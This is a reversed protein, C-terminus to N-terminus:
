TGSFEPERFNLNGGSTGQTLSFSFITGPPFFGTRVMWKTIYYCILLDPVILAVNLAAILAVNLAVNLAVILNNKLCFLLLVICVCYVCFLSVSHTIKIWKYRGYSILSPAILSAILAALLVAARIFAFALLFLSLVHPTRKSLSMLAELFM